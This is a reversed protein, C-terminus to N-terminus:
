RTVREFKAVENFYLDFVERAPLGKKEKEGIWEDWIPKCMKRANEKEEPSREYIHVGAAKLTKMGMKIEADGIESLKKTVEERAKEMVKQIDSPLKKWVNLIVSPHGANNLKRM